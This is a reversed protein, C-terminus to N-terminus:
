TRPVRRAIEAPSLGGSWVTRQLRAAAMQSVTPATMIALLFFFVPSRLLNQTVGALVMLGLLPMLAPYFWGVDESRALRRLRRLLSVLMLLYLVLGFLGYSTLIELLDNHTGVDHQAMRKDFVRELQSVYQRNKVRYQGTGMGIFMNDVSASWASRWIDYRGSTAALGSRDLRTLAASQDEYRTVTVGIVLGGILALPALAALRSSRRGSSSRRAVFHLPVSFAFAVAGGRSGTFLLATALIAFVLSRVLYSSARERRAAFFTKALLVHMSAGLAFSLGNPNKSFATLRDSLSSLGMAYALLISAVVSFVFLDLLRELRRADTGSHKVVLYALIAFGALLSDHLAASLSATGVVSWFGALALGGILFYLLIWDYADLRIRRRSSLQELVWVVALLMGIIRYPKLETTSGFLRVWLYEFPLSVVYLAILRQIM